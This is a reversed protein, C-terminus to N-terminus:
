LPIMKTHSKNNSLNDILITQYRIPKETRSQRIQFRFMVTSDTIEIKPIINFTNNMGEEIVYQMCVSWKKGFDHHITIVYNKGDLTQTDQKPMGGYRCFLALSKFFSDISVEKHWTIMFKQLHTSGILQGMEKM